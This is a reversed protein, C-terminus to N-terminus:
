SSLCYLTHSPAWNGCGHQRAPFGPEAVSQSHSEPSMSEGWRLNRMPSIFFSITGNQATIKLVLHILLLVAKLVSDPLYYAMYLYSSNENNDCQGTDPTGESAQRGGHLCPFPTLWARDLSPCTHADPCEGPGGLHRLRTPLPQFAPLPLLVVGVHEVAALGHSQKNNLYSYLLRCNQTDRAGHPCLRVVCVDQPQLFLAGKPTTM